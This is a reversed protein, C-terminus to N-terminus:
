DHLRYCYILKRLFGYICGHGHVLFRFPKLKGHSDIHLMYNPVWIAFNGGSCSEEKDKNLEKLM